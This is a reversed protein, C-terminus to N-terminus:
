KLPFLNRQPKSKVEVSYIAEIEGSAEITLDLQKPEDEKIPTLNLTM